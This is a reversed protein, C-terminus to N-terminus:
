SRIGIDNLTKRKKSIETPKNCASEEFLKTGFRTLCHRQLSSWDGLLRQMHEGADSDAHYASETAFKGRLEIAQDLLSVATDYCSCVTKIDPNLVQNGSETDDSKSASSPDPRVSTTAGENTSAEFPVAIDHVMDTGGAIELVEKIQGLGPVVAVLEYSGPSVDRFVYSGSSDTFAAQPTGMLYLPVRAQPNGTLEQVVRGSLTVSQAEVPLAVLLLLLVVAYIRIQVM